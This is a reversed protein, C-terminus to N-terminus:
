NNGGNNNYIELIQNLLYDNADESKNNKQCLLSMIMDDESPQNVM